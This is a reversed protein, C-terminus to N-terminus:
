KNEGKAKLFDSLCSACDSVETGLFRTIAKVFAKNAKIAMTLLEPDDDSAQWAEFLTMAGLGLHKVLCWATKDGEYMEFLYLMTERRLQAIEKIDEIYQNLTEIHEQTKHPEVMGNNLEADYKEILTKLHLETAGFQVFARILDEGIGSTSEKNYSM